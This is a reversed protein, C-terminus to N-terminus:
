GKLKLYQQVAENIAENVSIHKEFAFEKLREFVSPQMLVGVRKSKTEIYRPDIRYGRPPRNQEFGANERVSETEQPKKSIFAMAPNENKFDKSM